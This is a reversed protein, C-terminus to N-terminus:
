FFFFFFLLNPPGPHSLGSLIQRQSLDHVWPGSISDWLSGVEGETEAEGGGM